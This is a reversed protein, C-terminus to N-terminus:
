PSRTFTTRPTEMSSRRLVGNLDLIPLDAPVMALHLRIAFPALGTPHPGQLLSSAHPDIPAPVVAPPPNATESRDPPTQAEPPPEPSSKAWSPPWSGYQPLLSSGGSAGVGCGHGPPPFATTTKRGLPIPRAHTRAEHPRIFSTRIAPSPSQCRRKLPNDFLFSLFHHHLKTVGMQCDVLIGQLAELPLRVQQPLQPMGEQHLNHPKPPPLIMRHKDSFPKRPSGAQAPLPGSGLRRGPAKRAPTPM